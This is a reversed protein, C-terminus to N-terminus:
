FLPFYKSLILEPQPLGAESVRAVQNPMGEIQWRFWARGILIAAFGLRAVLLLSSRTATGATSRASM